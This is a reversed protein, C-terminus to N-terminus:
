TSKLLFIEKEAAIQVGVKRRGNNMPSLCDPSNAM